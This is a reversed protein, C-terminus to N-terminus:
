QFVEEAFPERLKRHVCKRRHVVLAHAMLPFVKTYFCIYTNINGKPHWCFQILDDPFFVMLTFIFKLFTGTCYSLTVESSILVIGTEHSGRGSVTSGNCSSWYLLSKGFLLSATSHRRHYGPTAAPESWRVFRGSEFIKGNTAPDGTKLTSQWSVRDINGLM